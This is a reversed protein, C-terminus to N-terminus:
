SGSADWRVATLTALSTTNPVEILPGDAIADYDAYFAKLKSAAQDWEFIYGLSSHAKFQRIKSLGVQRATFAEGNTPYNSDFALTGSTNRTNGSVEENGKTITFVLPM